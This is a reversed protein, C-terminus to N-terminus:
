PKKIARLLICFHREEMKMRALGLAVGTTWHAVSIDVNSGLLCNPGDFRGDLGVNRPPVPMLKM